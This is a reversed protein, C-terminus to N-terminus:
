KATRYMIESRKGVEEGRSIRGQRDKGRPIGRERKGSASLVSSKGEEADNLSM